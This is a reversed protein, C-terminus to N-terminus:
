SLLHVREHPCTMQGPHVANNGVVRVSDLAQQIRVPLGKKVLNGVDDNIRKGKEGLHVCLRQIALRLLAASAKPSRSLIERAEGYEAKVDKPMDPNPLPATKALPWILKHQYWISFKGCRSCCVSEMEPMGVYAKKVHHRPDGWQQEAYADCHPCNFATLKHSPPTYPIPNTM